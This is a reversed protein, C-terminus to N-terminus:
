IVHRQNTGTKYRSRHLIGRQSNELFCPEITALEDATPARCNDACVEPFFRTLPRWEWCDGDACKFNYADPDFATVQEAPTPADAKQTTPLQEAQTAADVKQTIGQPTNLKSTSTNQDGSCATILLSFLIISLLNRM